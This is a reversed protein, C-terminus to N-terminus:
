WFNIGLKVWIVDGNVLKVLFFKGVLNFYFFVWLKVNWVNFVESVLYGM